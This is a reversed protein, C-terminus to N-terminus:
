IEGGNKKVWDALATMLASTERDYSDYYSDLLRAFAKAMDVLAKKM